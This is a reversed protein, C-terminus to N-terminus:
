VCWDFGEWVMVFLLKLMFLYVIDFDDDLIIVCDEIVLSCEFVFFVNESYIVEVKLLVVLFLVVVCVRGEMVGGGFGRMLRDYFVVIGIM